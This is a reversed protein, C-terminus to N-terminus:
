GNSNSRSLKRRIYACNEIMPMAASGIAEKDDKSLTKNCEDEFALWEDDTKLKRMREIFEERTM